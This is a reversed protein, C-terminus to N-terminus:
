RKPVKPCALFEKFSSYQLAVENPVMKIINPINIHIFHAFLFSAFFLAASLHPVSDSATAHGLRAFSGYCVSETDLFPSM